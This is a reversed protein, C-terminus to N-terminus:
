CCNKKAFNNGKTKLAPALYLPSSFSPFDQWIMKILVGKVCTGLKSSNFENCGLFHHQNIMSSAMIKLNGIERVKRQSNKRQSWFTVNIVKIRQCFIDIIHANDVNELVNAFCNWKERVKGQGQCNKMFKGSKNMLIIKEQSKVRIEQCTAVRIM